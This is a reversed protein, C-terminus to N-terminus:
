EVGESTDAASSAGSAGLLEPEHEAGSSALLQLREAFASGPEATYVLMVTGPDAPLAVEEYALM